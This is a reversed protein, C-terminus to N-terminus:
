VLAIVDMFKVVHELLCIKINCNLKHGHKWLSRIRQPKFIVVEMSFCEQFNLWGVPGQWSSASGLGFGLVM